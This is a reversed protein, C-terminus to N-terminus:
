ASIELWIKNEFVYPMIHQKFHLLLLLHLLLIVLGKKFNYSTVKLLHRLRPRLVTEVQEAAKM